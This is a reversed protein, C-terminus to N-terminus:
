KNHIQQSNTQLVHRCCISGTSKSSFAPLQRVTYYLATLMSLHQRRTFVSSTWNQWQACRSITSQAHPMTARDM